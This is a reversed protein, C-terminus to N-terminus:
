RRAMARTIEADEYANLKKKRQARGVEERSSAMLPGKGSQVRANTGALCHGEGTTVIDSGRMKHLLHSPACNTSGTTAM